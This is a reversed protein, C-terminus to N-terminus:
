KQLTECYFASRGGLVAKKIGGTKAIDCVCEPCRQGTKNYVCHQNQFEGSSGDPKRYDRLTSGGAKIANSLVERASKLLKECEALSLSKAPRFPSIKARYLAESAYINGIGCIIKQELLAVKIPTSHAQLQNYLYQATLNEDFPDPGINKLASCERLHASECYTLLGFRRPDNFILCGKDTEIIVHDHKELNAPKQPLIKIKGSMGLHWVLSLRNNLSIVIYKAIRQCHIIKAGTIKAAFDAPIKERFKDCLVTAAIINAGCVAKSVANKVTEVEPLEPM